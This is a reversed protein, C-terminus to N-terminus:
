IITCNYIKDALLLCENGLESIEIESWNQESGTYYVKKLSSCNYFADEMIETVNVSITISDLKTASMFAGGAITTVSTHVVFSTDSKGIAYQVLKKGDKSYLNGNDSMYYKNEESVSINVLSICGSFAYNGISTVGDGVVVTSLAVCDLFADYEIDTVTDPIVISTLSGCRSFADKLIKTVGVPITISNLKTAGMFAGEGVITVNTPIVFGTEEKGIAYQILKKGDKSYLNGDISKYNANAGDVSIAQLASCDSFALLGITTVGSHINIRVLSTAASFAGDGITTVNTPITFVTDSKARAYQVLVKEDKSYLNGDVSKYNVNNEDVTIDRLMDCGVFAYSHIFTISDPITVSELALCDIFAYDAIEKVPHGDYSTPITISTIDTNNIGTIVYYTGDQSLTFEFMRDSQSEDYEPWAVPSNDIYHWFNGKVIPATASYYYRTAAELQESIGLFM